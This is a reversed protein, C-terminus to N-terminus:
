KGRRKFQPDIQKFCHRFNVKDEGIFGGEHWDRECVIVGWESKDQVEVVLINPNTICGAFLLCSLMILPLKM